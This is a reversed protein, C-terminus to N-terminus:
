ASVGNLWACLDRLWQADDRPSTIITQGHLPRFEQGDSCKLYDPAM